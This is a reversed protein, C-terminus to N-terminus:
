LLLVTSLWAVVYFLGITSLTCSSSRSIIDENVLRLGQIVWHCM